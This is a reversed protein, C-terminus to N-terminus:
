EGSEEHNKWYQIRHILEGKAAERYKESVGHTDFHEQGHSIMYELGYILDEKSRRRMAFQDAEMEEPDIEDAMQHAVREKNKEMVPKMDALHGCFVHGLEHDIISELKEDNVLDAYVKPSITVITYDRGAIGCIFSGAYMTRSRMLLEESAIMPVAESLAPLVAFGIYREFAGKPIKCKKQSKEFWYQDAKKHAWYVKVEPLTNM